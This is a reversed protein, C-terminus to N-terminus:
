RGTCEKKSKSVDKLDDILNEWEAIARDTGVSSGFRFFSLASTTTKGIIKVNIFTIKGLTIMVCGLDHWKDSKQRDNEAKVINYESMRGSYDDDIRNQIDGALGADDSTSGLSEEPGLGLGDNHDSESRGYGETETGCCDNYGDDDPDRGLGLIDRYRM